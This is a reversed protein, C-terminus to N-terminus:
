NLEGRSWPCVLHVGEPVKEGRGKGGALLHFLNLLYLLYM